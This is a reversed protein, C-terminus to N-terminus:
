QFLPLLLELSRISSLPEAASLRRAAGLRGAVRVLDVVVGPYGSGLFTWGKAACEGSGHMLEQWVEAMPFHQLMFDLGPGCAPVQDKPLHQIWIHRAAVAAGGLASLAILAPISELARHARWQTDGRHLVVRRHRHLHRAPDHVVPVPRRALCVALVAGCRVIRRRHSCRGSIAVQKLHQQWIKLM